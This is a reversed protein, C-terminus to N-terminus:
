RAPEAGPKRALTQMRHRCFMAGPHKAWSQWARRALHAHMPPLGHDRAAAEVRQLEVEVLRAIADPDAAVEGFASAAVLDFGAASLLGRHRRGFRPQMGNARTFAEAGERVAVLAPLSPYMLDAGWDGDVVALLGGPRLVRRAERLAAHPDVTHMLLTHAFVVDFSHDPFPLSEIAAEVYEIDPGDAARAIELVRPDIDAGVVRGPAVAAALGRTISGTGCGCDLLRMGPELHPLLFAANVAASRQELERLFTGDSWQGRRAPEPKAEPTPPARLWGRVAAIVEAPKEPLLAHGAGDITVLTVRGPADEALREGNAVPATRDLAGQIVLLPAEGGTWWDELPSVASAEILQMVAGLEWDLWVRADHGPAFFADAIAEIRAPLDRPSAMIHTWVAGEAAVSPVKGGAALLVVAKVREPARAAWQRAVRNGFAHGVAIAPAGGLADVVASVDDAIAALSPDPYRGTSEGAGRYDISATRYGDAALADALPDLDTVPRGCGPLLVVLPGEGRLAVAITGGPVAIRRHTKPAPM